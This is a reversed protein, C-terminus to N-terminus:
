DEGEPPLYPSRRPILMPVHERYHEYATGFRTVLGKEEFLRLHAAAAAGGVPVLVLGSASDALFAVGLLIFLVGFIMPNRVYAYPGTTVLRKTPELAVGFAEVPSGGGVFILYSYSWLIWFLGVSWSAGTLIRAIPPSIPTTPLGFVRDLNRAVLWFVVPLATGVVVASATTGIIVRARRLASGEKM